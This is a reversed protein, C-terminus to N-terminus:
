DHVRRAISYANRQGGGGNHMVVEGRPSEHPGDVLGEAALEAVPEQGGSRHGVHGLDVVKASPQQVFDVTGDAPKGLIAGM